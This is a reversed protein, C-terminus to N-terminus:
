ARRFCRSFNGKAFIALQIAHRCDPTLIALFLESLMMVLQAQGGGKEIMGEAESFNRRIFFTPFFPWQLRGIDVVITSILIDKNGIHSLEHAIVGELENKNLIRM